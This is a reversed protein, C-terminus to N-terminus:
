PMGGQAAMAARVAAISIAIGATVLCMVPLPFLRAFAPRWAALACFAPMLLAGAALGASATTAEWSGLALRPAGTWFVVNLVGLAIMAIHGLRLLRRRPSAYGGLHDPNLFGLGLAAGWVFGLTIGIWGIAGNYM